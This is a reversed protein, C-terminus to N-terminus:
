RDPRFLRGIQLDCFSAVQEEKRELVITEGLVEDVLALSMRACELINMSVTKVEDSDSSESLLESYGTHTHLFSFIM